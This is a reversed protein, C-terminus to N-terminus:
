KITSSPAAARSTPCIMLNDRQFFDTRQYVETRNEGMAQRQAFKVELTRFEGNREVCGGGSTSLERARVALQDVLGDRPQALKRLDAAAELDEIEFQAIFGPEQKQM